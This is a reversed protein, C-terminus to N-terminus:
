DAYIYKAM